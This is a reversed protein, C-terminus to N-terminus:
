AKSDAAMGPIEMPMPKCSPLSPCTKCDDAAWDDIEEWAIPKGGFKEYFPVADGRAVLKLPGYTSLAFEMLAKGAHAGRAQKETIIPSIYFDGGAKVIRIFGARYPGHWAIYSEGQKSLQGMGEQQALKAIFAADQEDARKVITNM